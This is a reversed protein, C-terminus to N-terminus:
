AASVRVYVILYIVDSLKEQEAIRDEIRAKLQVAREVCPIIQKRLSERTIPDQEDLIRCFILYFLYFSVVM